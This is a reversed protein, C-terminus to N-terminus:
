GSSEGCEPNWMGPLAAPAICTIERVPLEEDNRIDHFTAGATSFGTSTKIFDAGAETVVRCMRIKEEETLLGYYFYSNTIEADPSESTDEEVKQYPVKEFLGIEKGDSGSCLDM